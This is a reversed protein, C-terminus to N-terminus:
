FFSKFNSAKKSRTKGEISSTVPGELFAPIRAPSWRRLVRQNESNTPFLSESARPHKPPPGFGKKVMGGEGATQAGRPGSAGRSRKQSSKRGWKPIAPPRNPSRNDRREERKERREERKERRGERKERRRTTTTKRPRSGMLRTM